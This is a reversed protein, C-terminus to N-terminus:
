HSILNKEIDGTETHNDNQKESNPKHQVFYVSGAVEPNVLQTPCLMLASDPNIRGFKNGM